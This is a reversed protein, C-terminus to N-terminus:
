YRLPRDNTICDAITEWACAFRVNGWECYVSVTPFACLRGSVFGDTIKGNQAIVKIMPLTDKVERVTM